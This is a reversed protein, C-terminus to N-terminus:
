AVLLIGANNEVEVRRELTLNKSYETVANVLGWNNNEYKFDEAEYLRFKFLDIVKAAQEENIKVVKLKSIIKEIEDDNDFDTIVEGSNRAREVRAVFEKSIKPVLELNKSLGKRLAEPTIGIHKQQFLDGQGKPLCLGNTCVQKFLFYNVRLQSRGVDSSNVTFGGFLDEDPLKLPTRETVRLHFREPSLYYGRVVFNQTPFTENIVELIEPTDCTAFKQSLVGRIKGDCERIFMSGKYDTLWSQINDQALDIRGSKICKEIYQSPVGVKTCLQSMAFPSIPSFRADTGDPLYAIAGSETLRLKEDTVRTINFDECKDQLEQAKFLINPITTKEILVQERERMSRGEITTTM